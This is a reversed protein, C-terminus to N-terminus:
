RPTWRAIPRVETPLLGKKGSAHLMAMPNMDAHPGVKTGAILTQASAAVPGTTAGGSGWFSPNSPAPPAIKQLAQQVEIGLQTDEERSATTEVQNVIGVDGERNNDKFNTLGFDKELVDQAIDVAKSANSGGINVRVPRWELVKLCNPCDPDGDDPSCEVDWEHQCDVCAYTRIIM